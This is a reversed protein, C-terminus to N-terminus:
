PQTAAPAGPDAAPTEATSFFTYTATYPVRASANEHRADCGTAPATGGRTDSRRVLTVPTLLGKTSGEAHTQILVWPVSNSDPSPMNAIVKGSIASGDTWTWTPGKSHVGVKRGSSPEVLAADPMSLTWAYAGNTATCQYVQVGRGEATAITVAGATPTLTPDLEQPASLSAPPVAPSLFLFVLPLLM